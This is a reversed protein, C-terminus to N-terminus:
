VAMVEEEKRKSLQDIQVVAADTQKQLDAQARRSEDQSAQGDKELKRIGELVDRRVNRVAVKSDEVRKRVLKVLDKRREETLPPINLRIVRGDVNPMISLDSNRIAKEIAAMSGQDWPQILLTRPDPSSIQSLQRLALQSGAYEVILGDIMGPSARGTRVSSLDKQLADIAGKMRIKASDIQQMTM